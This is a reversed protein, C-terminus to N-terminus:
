KRHENWHLELWKIEKKSLKISPREGHLRKYQPFKKIEASLDIMLSDPNVAILGLDFLRHLDRRLLIGGGDLHKEMDSYSYLHAAELAQVPTEGMFACVKGFKKILHQRFQHQGVRVKTYRAKRGGGLCIDVSKSGNEIKKIEAKDLIKLFEEWKFSRISHQSKPSYCLERLIKGDFRGSIDLWGAEHYSRFTKIEISEEKAKSFEKLCKHCRLKTSSSAREKITTYNCNPCRRRIKKDTDHEIKRIISAGLSTKSDWIVIGDGPSPKAYNPVTDDWSYFSSDLDNYGLNGAYERGETKLLLLWSNKV